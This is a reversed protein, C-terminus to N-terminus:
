RRVQRDPAESVNWQDSWAFEKDTAFNLWFNYFLRAAESSRERSPAIWGWTSYGFSPFELDNSQREESALRDFLNRYITFFGQSPNLILRSTNGQSHLTRHGYVKGM